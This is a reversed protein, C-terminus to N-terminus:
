STFSQVSQILAQEEFPKTIYDSAGVLRGRARDFVGDKGSLMVIPMNRFESNRRIIACTQYGDLRPMMIDMVILDPRFDVVKGLADFGDEATMVQYQHKKLYIEASKRITQSDDVVLVKIAKEVM